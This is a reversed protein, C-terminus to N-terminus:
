RYRASTKPVSACGPINTPPLAFKCGSCLLGKLTETSALYHCVRMADYAALETKHLLTEWRETGLGDLLWCCRIRM